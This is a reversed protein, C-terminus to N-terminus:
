DRVRFREVRAESVTVGLGAGDPRRLNGRVIPVPVDCVDEALYHQTVNLGWDLNPAVSGLHAVAAAAISSEAVKCALNISLGLSECTTM